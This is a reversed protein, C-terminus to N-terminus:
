AVIGKNACRKAAVHIGLDHLSHFIELWKHFYELSLDQTSSVTDLRHLAQHSLMHCM